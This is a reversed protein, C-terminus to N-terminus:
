ARPKLCTGGSWAFAASHFIVNSGEKANNELDVPIVYFIHGDMLM